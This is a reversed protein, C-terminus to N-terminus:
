EVGLLRFAAIFRQTRGFMLRTEIVRPPTCSRSNCAHIISMGGHQYDGVIGLHQPVVDSALVILDGIQMESRKIQTMYRSCTKIMTGDPSQVYPPVDFDQAVAGCARLVGVPLGVCDVGVGKVRGAHHWPTGIWSRAEAVVAERTTM